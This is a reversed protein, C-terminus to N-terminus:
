NPITSKYTMEDIIRQEIIRYILEGAFLSNYNNFNKPLVARLFETIRTDYSLFTEANFEITWPLSFVGADKNTIKLTDSKNNVVNLIIYPVNDNFFGSYFDSKFVANLLFQDLSDIIKGPGSFYPHDINIFSTFDGGWVKEELRKDKARKYFNSYNDFDEKSFKFSYLVPKSYNSSTSLINKIGAIKDQEKIILETINEKYLVHSHYRDSVTRDYDYKVGNIKVLRIGASLFGSLDIKKSTAVEMLSDDGPATYSNKLNLKSDLVYVKGGISYLNITNALKNVSFNTTPINFATWQVPSLKSFYIHENQNILMVSDIIQVKDIRSRASNETITFRGQDLPSPIQKTTIWNDNTTALGNDLSGAIGNLSDLMYISLVRNVPNFPKPKKGWNTGYDASYHIYEDSGGMWVKGDNEFHADYIWADGKFHKIKWTKGGDFTQYVINKIKASTSNDGLYGAILITDKNFRMINDLHDYESLKYKLKLSAIISDGRSPTQSYCVIVLFIFSIIFLLTRM